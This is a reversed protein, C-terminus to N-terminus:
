KRSLDSHSSIAIKRKGNVRGTKKEKSNKFAIFCLWGAEEKAFLTETLERQKKDMKEKGARKMLMAKHQKDYAKRKEEDM